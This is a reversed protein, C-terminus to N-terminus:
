EPVASAFDYVWALRGRRSPRAERQYLPDPVGEFKDLAALEEPAIPRVHGRVWGASPDDVDVLIPYLPM